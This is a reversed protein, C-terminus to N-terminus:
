GSKKFETFFYIFWKLTILKIFIKQKKGWFDGYFMLSTHQLMSVKTLMIAWSSKYFGM